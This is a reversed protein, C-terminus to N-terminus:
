AIDTQPFLAAPDQNTLFRVSYTARPLERGAWNETWHTYIGNAYEEHSQTATRADNEYNTM